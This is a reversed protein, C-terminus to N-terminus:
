KEVYEDIKEKIAAADQEQFYRNAVKIVPLGAKNEFPPFPDPVVYYDATDKTAAEWDFSIEYSDDLAEHLKKELKKGPLGGVYTISLLQNAYLIFVIRKKM